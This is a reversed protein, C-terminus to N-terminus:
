LAIFIDFILVFCVVLVGASADSFLVCIFCWVVMVMASSRGCDEEAGRPRRWLWRYRLPACLTVRSEDALSARVCCKAALPRVSGGTIDSGIERVM